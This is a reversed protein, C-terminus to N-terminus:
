NDDGYSPIKCNHHDRVPRSNDDDDTMRFRGHENSLGERQCVYIMYQRGPADLHRFAKNVMKVDQLHCAAGGIIRWARVPSERQVSRACKIASAYFGNVYDTQAQTLKADACSTLADDPCECGAEAPPDAPEAPQAPETVETEPVEVIITREVSVTVQQTTVTAATETCPSGLNHYATAGLLAGFLVGTAAALIPKNM